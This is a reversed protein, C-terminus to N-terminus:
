KEASFTFETRSRFRDGPRLITSPFNPHNPSDPFHQTELAFAGRRPYRVGGKGTVTGDLFNGTYFQVGPETTAVDLVRGSTPDVVRAVAVVGTRGARDLVWNHDYGHGYHLQTDPADIRAGIATPTRFDFPTGGVRALEGTPILTSDVPTFASADLRMVHDLIDGRGEGHLNWYTHQSLNIPTAKTTTAEYDVVLQDSPTLSYSVRVTVTGPYGEEGDPSVYRFSVSATDGHETPEATWLVKDFGRIGGHLSNPGNNRALHYTKGDLTFEGNAIRNAYRGVVAGFYPTKELYGALSDFGLVVDDFRGARDPTRVSVIIAGYNIARVEVGHANTLTFLSVARGDSLRGFSSETLSAMRPPPNTRHVVCAGVVTMGLAAWRSMSSMSSMSRM